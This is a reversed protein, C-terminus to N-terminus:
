GAPPIMVVLATTRGKGPNSWRRRAESILYMSDGENLQATRDDASVTLKGKLVYWWEEGHKDKKVEESAAGSNFTKIVADMKHGAPGNCLSEIRVGNDALHCERGNKKVVSMRSGEIAAFLEHLKIQLAATIKSLSGVSPAVSDNEIRSILAKSYGTNDAVDQLTMKKELRLKKLKEGLTMARRRKERNQEQQM